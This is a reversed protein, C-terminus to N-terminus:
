CNLKMSVALAQEIKHVIRPVAQLSANRVIRHFKKGYSRQQWGGAPGFPL